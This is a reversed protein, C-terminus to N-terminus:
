GASASRRASRSPTAEDFAPFVLAAEQGAIKAIDGSVDM